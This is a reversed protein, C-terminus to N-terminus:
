VNEVREILKKLDKEEIRSILHESSNINKIDLKDLDGWSWPKPLDFIRSEIESVISPLIPKILITIKAFCYISFSLIKHLALKESLLNSNKENNDRINKALIWPKNEDIYSNVYDMLITLEKSVKSTNRDEYNKRINKKFENFKENIKSESDDNLNIQSNKLVKGNFLKKIFGSVRSYINIYKGVLDSNIKKMFDDLNLDIDEMSGNLKTALYYRLCEPNLGSKIYEEATIYTGRSKSMKHGNITLFGHVYIASPVRFGSFKLIAPWFLSHFYLIDKGIFHVQEYESKPSVFENFDKNNKECWNKLGAYYGIPADLWVYFYKNPSNPIEFGFYPADRSIDWDTLNSKGNADPKLWENIKNLSEIQLKGTQTTWNQLFDICRKDSLLFFYHDSERTEPRKGSLQSVPNKLDTPNYTAGCAECADGFEDSSGCRPCEGKIFRDPLFMQKEVDFMQKIKKIKILKAEVLSSYIKNSLERNEKSHTTYYCDFDIFFASFDRKHEHWVKEILQEPSIREKQAKLMVPTGHTDDACIYVTTNGLLKQFRVWIDTQVYEVLHGLHIPGNAYPLASTIFIKRKTNESM